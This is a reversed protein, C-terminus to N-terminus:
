LLTGVEKYKIQFGKPVLDLSHIAERMRFLFQSALKPSIKDCHSAPESIDFEAATSSFITFNM